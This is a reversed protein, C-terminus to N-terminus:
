QTSGLYIAKRRTFFEESVTGGEGAGAGSHSFGQMPVHFPSGTLATNVKVTGARVGKWFRQAVTIDSTVIGATLGYETSNATSIAEELTKVREVTVVPGFIEETVLAEDTADVLLTPATYGDDWPARIVRNGLRKATQLAAHVGATAAANALMGREQRPMENLTASLREIIADAIDRHLLLRGTSTCVQGNNVFSSSIILRVALDLDADAWILLSNKGGLEAQLPVHVPLARHIMAASRYSGTMSVAALRPDQFLASEIEPIEGFIVNCVGAPVGVEHLVAAMELALMVGGPAPKVIAANGVGIAAGIKRAPLTFPFNWPTVLAVVGLPERLVSVDDGTDTHYTHGTLRYGSSAYFDFVNAGKTVEAIGEAVPKGMERSILKGLETARSRFAAAAARLIEARDAPPRAAWAIQAQQATAYANGIELATAGHIVALVDASDSPNVLSMRAGTARVPKGSIYQHVEPVDISTSTM